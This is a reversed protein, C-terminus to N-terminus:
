AAKERILKLLEKHINSNAAILNGSNLYENNGDFDTIISGAEQLIIAGAAIDWPALNIGWLGDIRGCAVYALDLAASGSRRTGAAHPIVAALIKLYTSLDKGTKNGFSSAILSGDLQKQKSARIRRDNLFAGAGFTATFLEQRLPDYIIGHEIRNKYKIGISICFHPNGHMFNTTGDIPDIIWTYESSGTKESKGSEEGLIAHDPYSEHIVKIIEQEAYEDVETVFNNHSKEAVHITDLRDLARLIIKSSQRAAKIAINVLPHTQM